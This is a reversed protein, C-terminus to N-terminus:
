KSVGNKRYPTVAVLNATAGLSIAVCNLVSALRLADTRSFRGDFKMVIESLFPSETALIEKPSSTVVRSRASM